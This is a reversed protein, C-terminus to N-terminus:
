IKKYFPSSSIERETAAAVFGVRFVSFDVWVFDDWRTLEVCYWVDSM